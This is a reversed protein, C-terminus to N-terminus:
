LDEWFLELISLNLSLCTLGLLLSLILSSPSHLSLHTMRVLGKSALLPSTTLLSTPPM